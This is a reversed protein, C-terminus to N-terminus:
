TSTKRSLSGPPRGRKKPLVSDTSAPEPAQGVQSLSQWDGLGPRGGMEATMDRRLYRSPDCKKKFRVVSEATEITGDERPIGMSGSAIVVPQTEIHRPRKPQPALSAKKLLLLLKADRESALFTAGAEHDERGYRVTRTAVLKVLM